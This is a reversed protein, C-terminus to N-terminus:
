PLVPIRKAAGLPLLGSLRPDPAIEVDQREPIFGWGLYFPLAQPSDLTCTHLHFRDIPRSFARILAFSMLARGAGVGMVSRTLGFFALECANDCRFDLELLGEAQGDKELVYVDYGPDDFIQELEAPSKQLRSWWLWDGGIRFYLDRYQQVDPPSWSVLRMGDPMEHDHVGVPPSDLALYTVITAVHGRPVGHFGVGLM